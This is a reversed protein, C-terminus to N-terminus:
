VSNHTCSLGCCHHNFGKESASVFVLLFTSYTLTMNIVYMMAKTTVSGTLPTSLVIGCVCSHKQQRKTVKAIENM